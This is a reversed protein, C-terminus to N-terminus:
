VSMKISELEGEVLRIRGELLLKHLLNKGQYKNGMTSGYDNILTTVAKYMKDKANKNYISYKFVITTQNYIDYFYFISQFYSNDVKSLSHGYFIITQVEESCPKNKPLYIGDFDGEIKRYTKTFIYERSGTSEDQDIGFIINRDYRGHVNIEKAEPDTTLFM